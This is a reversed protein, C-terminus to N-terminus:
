NGAAISQSSGFRIASRGAHSGALATRTDYTVKTIVEESCAILELWETFSAPLSAALPPSDPASPHQPGCFLVYNVRASADTRGLPREGLSSWFKLGDYGLSRIFECITQAPLYTFEDENSRLPETLEKAFEQVFSPVSMEAPTFLPDFFSRPKARFPSTMDIVRLPRLTAFVGIRIHEGVMPRIESVCTAKDGGLYMYSIGAPSMRSNRSLNVPAPGLQNAFATRKSEDAGKPEFGSSWIRPEAGARMVRARYMHFGAPLVDGLRILCDFLPVLLSDRYANRQDFYRSAHSVYYKFDRWATRHFDNTPGDRLVIRSRWGERWIEPAVETPAPELLAETLRWGQSNSPIEFLHDDGANEHVDSQLLRDSYILGEDRLVALASLRSIQISPVITFGGALMNDEIDL